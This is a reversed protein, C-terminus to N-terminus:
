KGLWRKQDKEGPAAPRLWEIYAALDDADAGSLPQPPMAYSGNRGIDGIHKQLSIPNYRMRLNRFPPAFASPSDGAPGVAHCSSCIREAVQKGREASAFPGLDGVSAGGANDGGLAACGATLM